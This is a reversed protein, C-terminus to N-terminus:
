VSLSLRDTGENAIVGVGLVTKPGLVGESDSTTLEDLSSTRSDGDLM